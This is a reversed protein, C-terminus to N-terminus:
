ELCRVAYAMAQELSLSQGAAWAQDLTAPNLQARVQALNAAHLAAYVPMPAIGLGQRLHDAAGYLRTAGLWDCRSVSLAAIADLLALSRWHETLSQQLRWSDRFWRASVLPQNQLLALRGGAFCCLEVCWTYGVDQSLALGATVLAQAAEWQEAQLAIEALYTRALAVMPSRTDGTRECFALCEELVPRASALRGQYYLAQGLHGLAFATASLSDLSRFLELSQRFDAEAEPLRGQSLALRGRLDLTWAIQRADALATFLDLCYDLHARAAGWQGRLRALEGLGQRALGAGARRGLTESLELSAQFVSVMTTYDALDHALWGALRLVEARLPHLLGATQELVAQTMQRAESQYGCLRWFHWLAVVLRLGLEGAHADLTWRLATQLNAHDRQLRELHAQRLAPTHALSNQEALSLYYNAHARALAAAEGRQALQELAYERTIDLMQFRPEGDPELQQQLLSQDALASVAAHAQEFAAPSGAPALAPALCVAAVAETKCGGAFIALRSFLQQQLPSLLRYSWDLMDRLTQQHPYARLPGRSLFQLSKASALRVLMAQPSFYKMQFAALEIALPVGEMRLCLEAVAEANDRNLSFRPNVAQACQVFLAVAPSAALQNLDKSNERAPTALPALTFEHEGYIHLPSRSTVLLKLQPASGLLEAVLSAAPRLHEFNDLVLLFKRRKLYAKLQAAGTEELCLTQAIKAAVRQPDAVPALEVFALEQAFADAVRRALEISLRTKGIGGPGLLTLLRVHDHLLLPMLVQLVPEVGVLGTPPSPLNLPVAGAPAAEDPHDAPALEWANLAQVLVPLLERLQYFYTARSVNLHNAYVDAIADPHSLVVDLIRRQNPSLPYGQLYTYVAKLGGRVTIWEHWPEDQILRIPFRPFHLLAKVHEEDWPRVAAQKFM